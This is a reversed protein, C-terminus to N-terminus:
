DGCDVMRTLYEWRAGVDEQIRAIDDDTLHRFRGQARIYPEVPDGASDVTFRWRIGHEVELLPFIRNQVAM